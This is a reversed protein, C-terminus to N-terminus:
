SVGGGLDVGPAARGPATAERGRSVGGPPVRRPNASSSRRWRSPLPDGGALGARLASDRRRMATRRPRRRRRGRGRGRPRRPPGGAPRGAGLSRRLDRSDSGSRAASRQATLARVRGERHFRSSDRRASARWCLRAAPPFPLPPPRGGLLDLWVPPQLGLSDKEVRQAPSATRSAPPATACPPRFRRARAPVTPVAFARSRTGSSPPPFRCGRRRAAGSGKRGSSPRRRGRRTPPRGAGSPPLGRDGSVARGPACGGTRRHARNRRASSSGAPRSWPAAGTRPPRPGAGPRAGSPPNARLDGPRSRGRRRGGRLVARLGSGM